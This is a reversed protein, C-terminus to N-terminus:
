RACDSLPACNTPKWPGIDGISTLFSRWNTTCRSRRRAAKSRFRIMSRKGTQFYDEVTLNVVAGIRAFTYALTGLLARDRLGVENSTDIRDLVKQVQETDFAPPGSIPDGTIEIVALDCSKHVWGVKASVPPPRTQVDLSKPEERFRCIPRVNCSTGLVGPLPVHRATLLHRPTILYGSGYSKGGQLIEVIRSLEM